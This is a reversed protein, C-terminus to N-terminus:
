QLIDASLTKGTIFVAGRRQLEDMLEAFQRPGNNTNAPDFNENHWLV